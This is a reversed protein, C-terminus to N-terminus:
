QPSYGRVINAVAYGFLCEILILIIIEYVNGHLM